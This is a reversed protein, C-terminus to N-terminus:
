EAGVEKESELMKTEAARNNMDPQKMGRNRRKHLNCDNHHALRDESGIEVTTARTTTFTEAKKTDMPERSLVTRVAVIRMKRFPTADSRSNASLSRPEEEM